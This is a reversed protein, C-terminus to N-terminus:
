QTDTSPPMPTCFLCRTREGTQISGRQDQRKLLSTGHAHSTSQEAVFYDLGVTTHLLQRLDYCSWGRLVSLTEWARMLGHSHLHPKMAMMKWSRVSRWMDFARCARMCLFMSQGDRFHINTIPKLRGVAEYAIGALVDHGPNRACPVEIMVGGRVRRGYCKSGGSRQAPLRPVPGTAGRQGGTEGSEAGAAM